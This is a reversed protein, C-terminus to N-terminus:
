CGNRWLCRDYRPSGWGWRDACMHRVARCGGYYGYYGYPYYGYPYYGPVGIYVGVHPRWGHGHAKEVLSQGAPAAPVGPGANAAGAVSACAFAAIIALTKM